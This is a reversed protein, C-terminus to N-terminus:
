DDGPGCRSYGVQVLPQKASGDGPNSREEMLLQIYQGGTMNLRAAEQLLQGYVARNMRLCICLQDPPCRTYCEGLGQTDKFFRSKM